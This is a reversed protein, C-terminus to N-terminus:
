HAGGAQEAGDMLAHDHQKFVFMRRQCQCLAAAANRGRKRQEVAQEVIAVHPREGGIALRGLREHGAHPHNVCLLPGVVRDGNRDIIGGVATKAQHHLCPRTDVCLPNGGVQKCRNFHQHAGNLLTIPLFDGFEVNQGRGFAIAQQTPEVRRDRFVRASRQQVCGELSIRAHLRFRNGNLIRALTDGVARQVPAGVLHRM